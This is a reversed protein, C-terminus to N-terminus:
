AYLEAVEYENAVVVAERVGAYGDEALDLGPYSFHGKGFALRQAPPFFKRLEASFDRTPVVATETVNSQWPRIVIRQVPNSLDSGYTVTKSDKDSFSVCKYNFRSPVTSTVYGLM